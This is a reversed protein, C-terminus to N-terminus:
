GIKRIKLRIGAPSVQNGHIPFNKGVNFRGNGNEPLELVLFIDIQKFADFPAFLPAAIREDTRTCTEDEPHAVRLHDDFLLTFAADYLM